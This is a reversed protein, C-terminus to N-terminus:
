SDIQKGTPNSQAPEDITETPAPFNSAWQDKTFPKHELATKAADIIFVAASRMTWEPKSETTENSPLQKGTWELGM